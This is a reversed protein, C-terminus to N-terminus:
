IYCKIHSYIRINWQNTIGSTLTNKINEIIKIFIKFKNKFYIRFFLHLIKKNPLTSLIGHPLLSFHPPRTDIHIRPSDPLRQKDPLTM